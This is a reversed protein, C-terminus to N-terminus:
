ESTEQSDTRCSTIHTALERGYLAALDETVHFLDGASPALPLQAEAAEDLTPRLDLHEIGHTHLMAIVDEYVRVDRASWQARPLSLPLVLVTFDVGARALEDSLSAFGDDIDGLVDELRSDRPYRLGLYLRYVYSHRYLFLNVDEYPAFTAFVRLNGDDERFVVPTTEVDNMNFTLVVHDPETRHAYRRYYAIEQLTNFSGVGANLYEVDDRGCAERTARLIKGNATVSDGLFLIRESDVDTTDYEAHLIGHRDYLKSPLVPRFGFEPDVTFITRVHPLTNMWPLEHASRLTGHPRLVRLAGEALVLGVLVSVSVLLFPALVRVLRRPTPM